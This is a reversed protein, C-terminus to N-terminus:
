KHRNALSPGRDMYTQTAITTKGVPFSEVIGCRRVYGSAAALIAALM